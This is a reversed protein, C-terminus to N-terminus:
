GDTNKELTTLCDQVAHLLEDVSGNNHIVYDALDAKKAAPWQSSIRDECEQVSLDPDRSQLRQKQTEETATVAVVTDCYSHTGTEFLLANEYFVLATKPLTKEWHALLSQTEAFIAPHTINELAKKADADSFVIRGLARRDLSGTDDIIDNGFHARIRDLAPKGSQVIERAIQDADIITYGQKRLM